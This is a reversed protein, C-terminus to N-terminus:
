PPANQENDATDSDQTEAAGFSLMMQMEQSGALSNAIDFMSDDAEIGFPPEEDPLLDAKFEYLLWNLSRFCRVIHKGSLLCRFLFRFSSKKFDACMTQFAALSRFTEPTLPISDVLTHYSEHAAYAIKEDTLYWDLPPAGGFYDLMGERFAEFYGEPIDGSCQVEGSAGADSM